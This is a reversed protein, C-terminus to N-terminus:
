KMRPMNRLSRCLLECLLSTHIYAWMHQRTTSCLYTSRKLKCCITSLIEQWSGRAMANMLSDCFAPSFTTWFVFGESWQHFDGFHLRVFCAFCELVTWSRLHQELLDDKQLRALAIFAFAIRKKGKPRTIELVGTEAEVNWLCLQVPEGVFGCAYRECCISALLFHEDVKFQRFSKSEAAQHPHLAHFLGRM